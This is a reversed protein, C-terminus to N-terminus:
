AAGVERDLRLLGQRERPTMGGYVGHPERSSLAWRACEALVPCERCIRKAARVEPTQRHSRPHGYTDPFFLDATDPGCASEFEWEGPVLFTM